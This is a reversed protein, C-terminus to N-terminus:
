LFQSFNEFLNRQRIEVRKIPHYVTLPVTDRSKRGRTKKMLSDWRHGQNVPEAKKFIAEFEHLYEVIFDCIKAGATDM